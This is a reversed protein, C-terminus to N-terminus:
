NNTFDITGEYQSRYHIQDEVGILDFTITYVTGELSVQVISGEAFRVDKSEPSYLSINSNPSITMPTTATSYGYTGSQLTTDEPQGYFDITMEQNWNTDNFKIMFQGAKQDNVNLLKAEDTDFRYEGAKQGGIIIGAVEGTYSVKYKAGNELELEAIITYQDDAIRVIASGSKARTMAYDPGILASYQSITGATGETSFTYDGEPLWAQAKHYFDVRLTMGKADVFSVMTNTQGTVDASASVPTFTSVIPASRGLITTLTTRYNKGNSGRLDMTMTYTDEEGAKVIVRGGVLDIMETDGSEMDTFFLQSSSGCISGPAKTENVEYTGSPLDTSALDACFDLTMSESWSDNRFTIFYKGPEISRDAQIEAQTFHLQTFEPVVFKFSDIESVPYSYTKGDKTYILMHEISQASAVRPTALLLLGLLTMLFYNQKM